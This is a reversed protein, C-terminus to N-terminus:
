SNKRFLAEIIKYSCYFYIVLFYFQFIINMIKIVIHEEPFFLVYVCHILWGSLLSIFIFIVSGIKERIMEVLRRKTM